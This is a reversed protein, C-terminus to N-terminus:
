SRRWYASASGCCSSRSSRWVPRLTCPPSSRISRSTSRFTAGWSCASVLEGSQILEVFAGAVATPYSLFIPNLSRGYLEWAVLFLAVALARLLNPHDGLRFGAARPPQLGYVLGDESVELETPTPPSTTRAITTRGRPWCDVSTRASRRSDHM